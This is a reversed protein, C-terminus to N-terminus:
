FIMNGIITSRCLSYILLLFVFSIRSAFKLNRNIVCWDLLQPNGLSKKLFTGNAWYKAALFTPLPQTRQLPTPDGPFGWCQLKSEQQSLQTVWKGSKWKCYPISLYMHTNWEKTCRHHLIFLHMEVNKKAKLLFQVLSVPSFYGEMGLGEVM